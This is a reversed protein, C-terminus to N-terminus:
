KPVKLPCVDSAFLSMDLPGPTNLYLVGSNFPSAPGFFKGSDFYIFNVTNLTMFVKFKIGTTTNYFSYTNFLGQKLGTTVNELATYTM